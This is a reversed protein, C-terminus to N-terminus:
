HSLLANHYAAADRALEACWGNELGALPAAILTDGRWVAPSAILSAAPRGLTKRDPCLPLGAESLAAIELGEGAPGHMRWRGDWVESVPVRADAVARWERTLRLTDKRVLVRCGQLTGDEGARIAELLTNLEGGRPPYDAGSIWGLAAQVMRRWVADPLDEVAARDIVIDGVDMRVAREAVEAAYQGIAQRAERLHRTVRTLGPADVGLPALAQLVQRARVREFRADENSPDDAWDVGRVQLQDRLAARTVDMLPRHFWVGDVERRTAMASLGAVGSGRALRMLFTEAQDDATHGLAVDTIGHERAWGAMLAYRARRARDQLNGSGDWGRWRLIDHPVGLEACLRGVAAAEEAAEPRLGHDVTVVHLPAQGWDVLACLLAVSDGGGSVAVGLAAPPQAAFHATIHDIIEASQGSM